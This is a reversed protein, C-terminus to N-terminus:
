LEKYKIYISNALYWTTTSFIVLWELSANIYVTLFRGFSFCINQFANCFNTILFPILYFAVIGSIIYGFTSINKSFKSNRVMLFSFLGCVFVGSFWSILAFFGHLDSIFSYNFSLDGSFIGILIGSTTALIGCGVALKRILNSSDEDKVMRGLYVISHIAFINSIILGSRLFPGGSEHTLQSISYRWMMYEPSFILALSNGLIGIVFALLGFVYGPIFDFIKDFIVRIKIM